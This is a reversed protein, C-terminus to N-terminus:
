SKVDACTLLGAETKRKMEHHSKEKERRDVYGIAKILSGKVLSLRVSTCIICLKALRLPQCHQSKLWLNSNGIDKRVTVQCGCVKIYSCKSLEFKM